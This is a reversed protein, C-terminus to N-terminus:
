EEPETRFLYREGVLHVLARRYADVEEDTLLDRRRADVKILYQQMSESLDVLRRSHLRLLRDAEGDDVSAIVLRLHGLCLSPPEFARAETALERVIREAAMQEANRVASCAPCARDDALLEDLRRAATQAPLGHMARLRGATLELLRPYSRSLGQPSSLRELHWTHPPCLGRAALFLNRAAPDTTMAYQHHCLFDFLANSAVSCIACTATRMGKQRSATPSPIRRPAERVPLVPLAATATVPALPLSENRLLADRMATARALLAQFTDDSPVRADPEGDDRKLVLEIHRREERLRSASALDLGLLCADFHAGVARRLESATRDVDASARRRLRRSALREAAVHPLSLHSPPGSIEALDVSRTARDLDFPPALWDWSVPVGERGTGKERTDVGLLTAAAREPEDLVSAVDTVAELVVSRSIADVNPAFDRIWAAGRRELEERLRNCGTAYCLRSDSAGKVAAPIVPFLHRRAEDSFRELENELVDATWDAFRRHARTVITRREDDLEDLRPALDRVVGDNHRPSQDLARQRLGLTFRSEELVAITRDLLTTLLVTRREEDLFTALASELAGLGSAALAEPDHAGSGLARAASVPFLRVADVGLRRALLTATYALTEEREGPDLQDVKNLVFFLKRVCKRVDDLFALEAESLPADAGTVFIAADAEPLFALTTATNHEHASGIGPTDVFHLGRRLFRAPVEVTVKLVRKLNGPNGRETVYLPLDAVPIEENTARDATRVFARTTPGYRLSTVASTVPITGTPLLSQGVIANMLSTKGRKFQGLVVLQFRDQSLRTMLDHIRESTWPYLHAVERLLEAVSAKAQVYSRLPADPEVDPPSSTPAPRSDALDDVGAM